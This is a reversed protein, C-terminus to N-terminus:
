VGVVIPVWPSWDSKGNPQKADLTLVRVHLTAGPTQGALKANAKSVHIPDMFTAPNSVDTAWQVMFDYKGHLTKWAAEATGRVTSHKDHLNDPYGQLPLSHPLLVSCGLNTATDKSGDCYNNVAAFFGRKKSTWRRTLVVENKRLLELQALLPPIKAGNAKLDDTATGWDDASKQLDAPATTYGPSKKTADIQEYAGEIKDAVTNMPKKPVATAHDVSQHKSSKSM